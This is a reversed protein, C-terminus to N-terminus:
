TRIQILERIKPYIVLLPLHFNTKRKTGKLLLQKPFHHINRFLNVPLVPNDWGPISSIESVAIQHKVQLDTLRELLITMVADDNLGQIRLTSITTERLEILVASQRLDYTAAKM